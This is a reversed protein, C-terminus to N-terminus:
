GRQKWREDREREEKRNLAQTQTNRRARDNAAKDRGEQLRKDREARDKSSEGRTSNLGKMVDRFTKDKGM